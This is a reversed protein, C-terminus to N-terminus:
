LGMVGLVIINKQFCICLDEKGKSSGTKKGLLESMVYKPHLGMAIPLVHCRYATIVKDKNVDISNIMGSLIAEQGNYLHLFGRIKQQIYLAACKEEFKRWLLM